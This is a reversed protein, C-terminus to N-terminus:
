ASFEPFGCPQAVRYVEGKVPRADADIYLTTM